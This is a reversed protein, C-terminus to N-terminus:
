IVMIFPIDSLSDRWGCIKPTPFSEGRVVSALFGFDMGAEGGGNYGEGVPDHIHPIFMKVFTFLLFALVFAGEQFWWVKSWKNFAAKLSKQDHWYLGASLVLLILFWVWCSIM